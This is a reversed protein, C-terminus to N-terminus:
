SLAVDSSALRLRWLTQDKADAYKKERTNDKFVMNADGIRKFGISTMKNVTNIDDSALDVLAVDESFTSLALFYIESETLESQKTIGWEVVYGVLLNKFRGDQKRLRETTMFFGCHEGDCNVVYFSQINRDGDKFSGDLLWQLWQHNHLEAYKHGDNMVIEDVWEPVKSIKEISYKKGVEKMRGMLGKNKIGLYLNLPQALLSNLIGKVGLSYLLSRTNFRLELLPYKFVFYRLKEYIPLAQDSVGAALKTPTKKYNSQYMMIDVGIAYQRYDEHVYLASAATSPVNEDGNKIMTPFLMVRGAVVDDVKDTYLYTSDFDMLNPNALFVRRRSEYEYSAIENPDGEVRRGDKLDQYTLIGKTLEM